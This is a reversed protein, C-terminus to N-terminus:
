TAYGYITRFRCECRFHYWCAPRPLRDPYIKRPRSHLVKNLMALQEIDVSFSVTPLLPCTGSVLRTTWSVVSRTTTNTAHKLFLIEHPKPTGGRRHLQLCICTLLADLKSANHASSWYTLVCTTVVVFARMQQRSCGWLPLLTTCKSSWKPPTTTTAPKSFKTTRSPIGSRAIHTATILRWLHEAECARLSLLLPASVTSTEPRQCHDIPPSHSFTLPQTSTSDFNPPNTSTGRWEYAFCRSLPPPLAQM